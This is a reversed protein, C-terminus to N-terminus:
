SSGFAGFDSPKVGELFQKFKAADEDEESPSVPVSSAEMVSEAVKVPIQARIALAIADSPRADLVVTKGDLELELEAIYTNNRVATIRMQKLEAGLTLFGNLMLDHTMPRPPTIKELGALIANAEFEGVWILLARKGEQDKLVVIPSQSKPELMIGAVNLEEM